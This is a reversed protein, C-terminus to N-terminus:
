SSSNLLEEPLILPSTMQYKTLFAVEVFGPIILFKTGSIFAAHIDMGLIPRRFKITSGCENLLSLAGPIL